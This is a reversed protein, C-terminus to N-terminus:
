RASKLGAIFAVVTYTGVLGLGILFFAGAKALALTNNIDLPEEVLVPYLGRVIYVVAAGAVIWLMTKVM